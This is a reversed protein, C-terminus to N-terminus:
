PKKWQGEGTTNAAINSHIKIKGNGMSTGRGLHLIEAINWWKWWQEREREPPEIRANGMHGGMPVLKRQSNSRRQWDTWITETHIKGPSNLKLLLEQLIAPPISSNGHLLSIANLRIALSKFAYGWDHKLKFEKSDKKLRIPTEISVQWNVPPVPPIYSELPFSTSNLHTSNGNGYITQQLGGPLIHYIQTLRFSCRDAGLSIGQAAAHLIAEALISIFDAAAGILTLDLITNKRRPSPSIIYMRPPSSFGSIDAKLAYLYHYACSHQSECSICSPHSHKCAIKQLQWGICGRWASGTNGSLRNPGQPTFIFRYIGVKLDPFLTIPDFSDQSFKEVEQGFTLENLTYM